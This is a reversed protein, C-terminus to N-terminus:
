NTRENSNESALYAKKLILKSLLEHWTYEQELSHYKTSIWIHGFIIEFTKIHENNAHFQQHVFFDMPSSKTKLVTITNGNQQSEQHKRPSYTTFTTQFEVKQETASAMLEYLATLHYNENTSQM